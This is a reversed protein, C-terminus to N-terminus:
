AEDASREGKRKMGSDSSCGSQHRCGAELEDETDCDNEVVDFYQAASPGKVTRLEGGNVFYTDRGTVRGANAGSPLATSLRSTGAWGMQVSSGSADPVRCQQQEQGVGQTRNGPAIPYGVAFERIEVEEPAWTVKKKVKGIGEQQEGLIRPGTQDGRAKGKGPKGRGGKRTGKWQGAALAREIRGNM